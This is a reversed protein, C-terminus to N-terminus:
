NANRTQKIPYLRGRYDYLWPQYTTETTMTLM